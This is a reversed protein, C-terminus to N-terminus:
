SYVANNTDNDSDLNMNHIQHREIFYTRYAHTYFSYMGPYVTDAM